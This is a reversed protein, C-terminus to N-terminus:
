GNIYQYRAAAYIWTDHGNCKYMNAFVPQYGPIEEYGDHCKMDVNRDKEFLKIENVTGIHEFKSGYHYYVTDDDLIAYFNIIERGDYLYKYAAVYKPKIDGGIICDNEAIYQKAKANAEQFDTFANLGISRNWIVDWCGSLRKLRYGRNNEGCIWSKEDAVICEEVDGRVVKYIKQGQHLLIPPESAKPQPSIFNMLDTLSIQGVIDKM